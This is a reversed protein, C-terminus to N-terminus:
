EGTPIGALALRGFMNSRYVSFISRITTLAAICKEERKQSSPVDDPLMMLYDYAMLSISAVHFYKVLIADNLTRLVTLPLTFVLSMRCFTEALTAILM